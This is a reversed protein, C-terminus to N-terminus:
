TQETNDLKQTPKKKMGAYCDSAEFSTCLLYDPGAGNQLQSDDVYFNYKTDYQKIVNALPSKYLAFLVPGLVSGKPMGCAAKVPEFVLENVVM